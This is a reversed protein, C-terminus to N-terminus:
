HHGDVLVAVAGIGIGAAVAPRAPGAPEKNRM